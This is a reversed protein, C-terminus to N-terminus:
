GAWVFQSASPLIAATQTVPLSSAGELLYIVDAYSGNSVTGGVLIGLFHHDTPLKRTEITWCLWENDDNAAVTAVLSADIRDLTGNIAEACKPELTPEDSAHVTGLHVLIHVREYGSVDVFAGSAPINTATALQAGM